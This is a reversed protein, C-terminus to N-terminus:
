AQAVESKRHTSLRDQEMESAAAVGSLVELCAPINYLVHSNKNHPIKRRWCKGPILTGDNRLRYLTRESMCLFLAADHQTAWKHFTM